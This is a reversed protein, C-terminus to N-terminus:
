LSRIGIINTNEFAVVFEIDKDFLANITKSNTKGHKLRRQHYIIWKLKM